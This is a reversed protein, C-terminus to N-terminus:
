ACSGGPVRVGVVHAGYECALSSARPPSPAALLQPACAGSKATRGAALLHRSPRQGTGLPLERLLQACVTLCNVALPAARGDEEPPAGEWSPRPKTACPGSPASQGQAGVAM